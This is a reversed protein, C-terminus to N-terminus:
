GLHLLLSAGLPATFPFPRIANTIQRLRTPHTLLRQAWAEAHHQGVFRHHVRREYPLLARRSFDGTRFAAILTEAAWVGSRMAPYIGAGTMPGVLAAAEGVLLVGDGVLPGRRPALALPWARPPPDGAITAGALWPTGSVFRDFLARLHATDPTGTTSALTGIGINAGGEPLPMLWGYGPATRVDYAFVLCGDWMRPLSFGTAYARLAVGVQGARTTEDGRVARAIRSGYGDAGIVARAQITTATHTDGGRVGIVHGREHLLDRVHMHVFNAGADEATRVLATDFIHRPIVRADDRSRKGVRLVLPHTQPAVVVAGRLPQYPALTTTDVGLARALAIGGCGILDGCPKTRPFTQRDILAVRLGARALTMAAASGGPGAGVVAVDYDDTAM